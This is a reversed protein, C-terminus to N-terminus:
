IELRHDHAERSLSKKVIQCIDAHSKDNELATDYVCFGRLIPSSDNEKVTIKRIDDCNLEVIGSFSRQKLNSENYSTVRCNAAQAINNVSTYDLRNVSMGLSSADDFATATLEKADEDYHIPSLIQRCLIEEDGVPSSSYQSAIEHEWNLLTDQSIDQLLKCKEKNDANELFFDICMM